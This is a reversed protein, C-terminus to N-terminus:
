SLGTSVPRCIKQPLVEMPQWKCHLFDYSTSVRNLNQLFWISSRDQRYSNVKLSSLKDQFLPPERPWLLLLALFQDGAKITTWNRAVDVLRSAQAAKATPPVSAPLTISQLYWYKALPRTHFRYQGPALNRLTFNGHTNPLVPTGLSWAFQPKDKVALKENHWATVLTEAFSPRRKGKCAPSKSEELAIKGAVSALPRVLLELGTIDAGRVTIRRPESLAVEGSPLYKQAVLDYDGDAVGYFSFGRSAAQFSTNIWQSTGNFALNLSVTIGSPIPPGPDIATGSVTHGPEGRYRIDINSVEGGAPLSVEIANDRTSSPAFTPADNEFSSPYGGTGFSGGGASVVYTGAALGYIRYIGRDDTSREQYAGGYRPPNGKGDRIMQARVRLGVLPRDGAATVSGTIIGGKILQIKVSDGVRHYPAQTSDPDRPIPVYAPFSASVFYALPELNPVQFSGEADTTANRGPGTEGYARAFVMAGAIPQGKETVVQGTIGGAESEGPLSQAASCVALTILLTISLFGYRKRKFYEM